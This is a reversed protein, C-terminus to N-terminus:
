AESTLGGILVLRMGEEVSLDCPELASRPLYLTYGGIQYSMPFYVAVLKGADAGFLRPHVQDATVFGILRGDGFKWLVVRQLDRRQGSAPLFRTFDKLAGFITKVLPIRAILKEGFRIARRVVYANVLLGVILVVLFGVVLGLGPRYWHDPLILQLGSGLFEEATTGLWYVLYLTLAVPLVAALGKLFTNWLKRM